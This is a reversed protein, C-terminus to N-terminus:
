TPLSLGVCESFGFALNSLKVSQFPAKVGASTATSATRGTGSGDAAPNAAAAASRPVSRRRCRISLALYAGPGALNTVRTKSGALVTFGAAAGAKVAVRNREQGDHLNGDQRHRSVCPAASCPILHVCVREVRANMGGNSLMAAHDAATM